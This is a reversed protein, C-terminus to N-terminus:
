EGDVRRPQREAAARAAAHHAHVAAAATRRTGGGSGSQAAGRAGGGGCTGGGDVGVCVGCEAQARSVRARHLSSCVSHMVPPASSRVHLRQALAASYDHARLLAHGLTAEYSHWLEALLEAREVDHTAWQHVLEHVAIAHAAGRRGLQELEWARAADNDVVAHRKAGDLAESEEVAAGADDALVRLRATFWTRLLAVQEPIGRRSVTARRSPATRM